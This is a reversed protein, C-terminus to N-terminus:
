CITERDCLNYPIVGNRWLYLFDWEPGAEHEGEVKMTWMFWGVGSHGREYSDIQALFFNKMFNIHDDSYNPYDGNYYRFEIIFLNIEHLILTQRCASESSGPPDYPTVYGGQLYKQCDTIATSFEGTIIPLESSNRNSGVLCAEALHLNWGGVWDAWQNSFCQYHHADIVINSYQDSPFRGNFLQPPVSAVDIVVAIDDASFYKRVVEYGKPYYDELCAKLLLTGSQYGCIHPENLLGIGYLTDISIVGDDVWQRMTQAINENIRVTRDLNYRNGPYSFDVWHAAGRRGSNDYGNQSGPAAHLDILAQLGLEDMWQLARKLYFLPSNPDNDDMNPTPFPEGEEVDWYWYGVPIRFLFKKQTLTVWFVDKSCRVHSIGAIVLEEMHSKTVFTSWHGLMRNHYVFPDLLEAYTWEDVVKDVLDGVNVDEFFVPTIWPELLLWGGLNVGRILGDGCGIM